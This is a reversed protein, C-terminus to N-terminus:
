RLDGSNCAVGNGDVDVYWAYEEHTGKTYPGYGAATAEKCTPFRQDPTRTGAGRQDAGTPDGPLGTAPSTVPSSAPPSDAPSDAPTAPPSDAPTSPQASDGLLRTTLTEAEQQTMGAISLSDGDMSQTVIPAAVVTRPVLVVAIQRQDGVQEDILDVLKQKFAPAVAIRVSYTGDRERVAEVRQVSSVTVGDELLYCTTQADDLAAEEGPCPAAKTERVPAFHIPTSLRQPPNGGLLPADPAQTMLVAITGLVGAILVILVLSVILIVTTVKSARPPGPDAAAPPEQPKDM